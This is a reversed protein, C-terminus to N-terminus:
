IKWVTVYKWINVPGKLYLLISECVRKVNKHLDLIKQLQLPKSLISYYQYLVISQQFYVTINSWIVQPVM